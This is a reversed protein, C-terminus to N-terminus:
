LIDIILYVFFYFALIFFSIHVHDFTAFLLVPLFILLWIYTSRWIKIFKEM